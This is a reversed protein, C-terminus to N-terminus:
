NTERKYVLKNIEKERDKYENEALSINKKYIFFEEHIRKKNEKQYQENESKTKQSFEKLNLKIKNNTNILNQNAIRQDEILKNKQIENYKPIIRIETDYKKIINNCDRTQNEKRLRMSDLLANTTKDQNINLDRLETQYKIKSYKILDDCSKYHLFYSDMMKQNKNEIKNKEDKYKFDESEILNKIKLDILNLNEKHTLSNNYFNKELRQNELDNNKIDRQHNKEIVYQSNEYSYTYNERLNDLSTNLNNKYEEICSKFDNSLDLLGREMKRVFAYYKHLHQDNKVLNDLFTTKNISDFFSLYKKSVSNMRDITKLSVISEKRENIKTQNIKHLRDRSLLSIKKNHKVIEKRLSIIKDNNQAIKDQYSKIQLKYDFIKKRSIKIQTKDLSNNNEEINIKLSRDRIQSYFSAIGNQYNAITEKLQNIEKEENAIKQNYSYDINQYITTYKTGTDLRIHDDLIKQEKNNFENIIDKFSNIVQYFYLKYKKNIAGNQKMTAIAQGFQPLFTNKYNRAITFFIKLNLEMLYIDKERRKVQVDYKEGSITFNKKAEKLNLNHKYEINNLTLENNKIFKYMNFALNNYNINEQCLDKIQKNEIKKLKVFHSLYLNNLEKNIEILDKNMDLLHKNKEINLLGINNFNRKALSDKEDNSRLIIKQMELALDKDILINYAQNELKTIEIQTKSEFIQFDSQLKAIKIESQLKEKNTEQNLLNDLIKNFNNKENESIAIRKLLPYKEASENLNKINIQYKRRIDVSQKDHLSSYTLQKLEKQFSLIEKERNLSSKKMEREEHKIEKKRQIRNGLSISSSDKRLDEKMSTIEEEDIKCRINNHYIKDQITQNLKKTELDLRYDIAQLRESANHNLNKIIKSYKDEIAKIDLRIDNIVLQNQTDNQNKLSNYKEIITKIRENLLTEIEIIKNDLESKKVVINKKYKEIKKRILDNQEDLHKVLNNNADLLSYQNRSISSHYSKFNEVSIKNFYSIYYNYVEENPKDKSELNSNDQKIVQAKLDIENKIKTNYFNIKANENAIQNSYAENQVLIDQHIEEDKSYKVTNLDSLENDLEKQIEELRIFHDLLLNKSFEIYEETQYSLEDSESSANKYFNKFTDYFQPTFISRVDKKDKLESIILGLNSLIDIYSM